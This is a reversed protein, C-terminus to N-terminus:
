PIYSQAPSVRFRHIDRRRSFDSLPYEHSFNIKFLSVSSRVACSLSLRAGNLLTSQVCAHTYMIFSLRTAKRITFKRLRWNNNLSFKYTYMFIYRTVYVYYFRPTYVRTYVYIMDYSSSTVHTYM